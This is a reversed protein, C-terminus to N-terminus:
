LCYNTTDPNPLTLRCREDESEGQWAFYFCDGMNGFRQDNWITSSNKPSCKRSEDGTGSLEDDKDDMVFHISNSIFQDSSNKVYGPQFIFMQYWGFTMDDDHKLVNMYIKKSGM